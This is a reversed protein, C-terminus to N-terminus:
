QFTVSANSRKSRSSSKLDGSIVASAATSMIQHRLSAFADHISSPTLSMSLARREFQPRAARDVLLKGRPPTFSISQSAFNATRSFDVTSQFKPQPIDPVKQMSNQALQDQIYSHQFMQQHPSQNVQQPPQPPPNMYRQEWIQEQREENEKQIEKERKRQEIQELLMERQQQQRLQKEIIERQREPTQNEFSFLQHTM